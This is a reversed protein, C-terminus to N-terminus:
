DLKHRTTLRNLSLLVSIRGIQRAGKGGSPRGGESSWITGDTGEKAIGTDKRWRSRKRRRRRTGEGRRGRRCSRRNKKRRKFPYDKPRGM